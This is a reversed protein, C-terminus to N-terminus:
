SLSEESLLEVGYKKAIEHFNIGLRELLMAYRLTTGAWSKKWAKSFYLEPDKFIMIGRLIGAFNTGEKNKILEEMEEMKKKWEDELDKLTEFNMIRLEDVLTKAINDKPGFLPEILGKKIEDEYKNSLYQRLSSTNISIRLEGEKTSESVDRNYQDIQRSISDFEKDAIELLGSLVSVRRQIENPLVGKFKYQKDHQIEAWADQLITRVQIEFCLSEFKKFEPLNCREQPLTAVYHISRYGVKDIGLRESIDSSREKDIKFIGELIKCVEKAESDIYTIVRIGALDQIQKFDIRPIIKIKNKFSEVTKGRFDVLYYNISREDLVEEILDTVKEALLKYLPQKEIYWEEAEKLREKETM